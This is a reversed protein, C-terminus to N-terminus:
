VMRGAPASHSNGCRKPPPTNLPPPLTQYHRRHPNCISSSLAIISISMLLPPQRRRADAKPLPSPRLHANANSPPLPCCSHCRHVISPTGHHRHHHHKIAAAANSPTRHHPHHVVVLPRSPLALVPLVVVLWCSSLVLPCHLLLVFLSSPAVVLQRLSVILPLVILRCSSSLAACRSCGAHRSSSLTTCSVVLCCPFAIRCCAPAVLCHSPPAILPFHSAIRCGAPAVLCRSPQAILPCRSAIRCGAPAVLRCSPPVILPRCSAIRCGAPVVLRCWPMTILPLVVKYENPDLRFRNTLHCGYNYCTNLLFWFSQASSIFKLFDAIHDLLAESRSSM